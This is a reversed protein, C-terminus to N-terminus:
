VQASSAEVAALLEVFHDNGGTGGGYPETVVNPLEWLASHCMCTVGFGFGPGALGEGTVM